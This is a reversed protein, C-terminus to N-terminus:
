ATSRLPDKGEAVAALNRSFRMVLNGDESGCTAGPVVGGSSFERARLIHRTVGDESCIVIDSGSGSSHMTGDSSVGIGFWTAENTSTVTFSVEGNAVSYSLSLVSDLHIVNVSADSSKCVLEESNEASAFQLGFNKFAPSYFIPLNQGDHNAILVKQGGQADDSPMNIRLDLTWTSGLSLYSTEGTDDSSPLSVEILGNGESTDIAAVEDQEPGDVAALVTGQPSVNLSVTNGKYSKPSVTGQGDQINFQLPKAAVAAPGVILMLLAAYRMCAVVMKLKTM